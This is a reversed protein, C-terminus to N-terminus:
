CMKQIKAVTPKASAKDKLIYNCNITIEVDDYVICIYICLYMCVYM